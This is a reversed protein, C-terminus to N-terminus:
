PCPYLEFGVGETARRLGMSTTAYTPGMEQGTTPLKSISEPTQRRRPEAIANFVDSTTAARAMGAIQVWLRVRPEVVTQM